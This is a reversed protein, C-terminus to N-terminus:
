EGHEADGTQSMEGVEAGEGSDKRVSKSEGGKAMSGRLHGPALSPGSGM